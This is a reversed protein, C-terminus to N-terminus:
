EFELRLLTDVLPRGIWAAITGALTVGIEPLTVGAAALLQLKVGDSVQVSVMAGASVLWAIRADTHTEIGMLNSDGSAWLLVAGTGGVLGASVRKSRLPTWDAQARVVALGVDAGFRRGPEDVRTPFVSSIVQTEVAVSESFAYGLQLELLPQPRLPGTFAVGVGTGFVWHPRAPSSEAFRRVQPFEDQADPPLLRVELMSAHLLEVARLALRAREAGSTPQEYTRLVVKSTVRDAVWADVRADSRPRFWMVAVAADVRCREFLQAPIDRAADITAPAARVSLGSATLEAALREEFPRWEPDNSQLLLVTDAAQTLVVMALAAFPSM